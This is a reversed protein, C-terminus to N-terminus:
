KDEGMIVRWAERKAEYRLRANAPSTSPLRLRPIAAQWPKLAPLAFRRFFEDAKAGNLFIRQIHPHQDLFSRFDNPVISNPDIDSDLSSERTCLQLVDWVALGERTLADVREPYPLGPNFGFLDGQIRWFANQPHAYYQRARLSAKGPMTGLVLVHPEAGTLPPFCQITSM